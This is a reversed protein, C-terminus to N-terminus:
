RREASFDGFGVRSKPDTWKRADSEQVRSCEAGVSLYNLVRPKAPRAAAMRFSRDRHLTIRSSEAKAIRLRGSREVWTRRSIVPRSARFHHVRAM